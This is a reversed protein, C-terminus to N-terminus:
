GRSIAAGVVAAVLPHELFKQLLNKAEIKEIPSGNSNEIKEVLSQITLTIQQANGDGIQVANASHINITQNKMQDENFDKHIGNLYQEGEFTLGGSILVTVFMGHSERARSIQFFAKNILNREYASKIRKATAQFERIDNPSNSTPEFSNKGDSIERLLSRTFEM